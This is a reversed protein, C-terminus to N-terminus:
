TPRIPARTTCRSTTTPVTAFLKSRGPGFDTLELSSSSPRRAPRRTSTSRPWAHEETRQCTDGCPWAPRNAPVSRTEFTQRSRRHTQRRGESPKREASSTPRVREQIPLLVRV